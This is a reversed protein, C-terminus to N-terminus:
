VNLEPIERIALGVSVGFFLVAGNRDDSMEETGMNLKDSLHFYDTVIGTRKEMYTDLGQITSSSGMLYVHDVVAGRMESSFYQLMKDIEGTLEGIQNAIIQYVVDTAKGQIYSKNEHEPEDSHEPDLGKRILLGDANQRDLKLRNMLSEVVNERGWVITRDLLINNKWILTLTTHRNNSNIVLVNRNRDTESLRILRALACASIELAAPKLRARKLISLQNDVDERRASIMLSRLPHDTDPGHERDDFPIYDIVANEVDYSLHARAKELIAEEVSEDQALSFKVPLIDLQSGPMVSVVSKGSFSAGKMCEKIVDAVDESRHQGNEDKPLDIDKVVLGSIEWGTETRKLQAMKISTSGIDLGIPSYRGKGFGTVGRKKM